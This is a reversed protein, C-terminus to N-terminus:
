SALAVAVPRSTERLLRAADQHRNFDALARRYGTDTGDRNGFGGEPEALGEDDLGGFVPCTSGAARARALVEVCDRLTPPRYGEARFADALPSGAAAFTPHLRTSVPIGHRRGLREVHLITEVAELRGEEDTMGAAPKLMVNEDLLMEVGVERSVDAFSAYFRQVMPEPYGKVLIRNRLFPDQTEYGASIQLVIRRDGGLLLRQVDRLVRPTATEIRTELCVIALAPLHRRAAALLRVLTRFPLTWPDLM